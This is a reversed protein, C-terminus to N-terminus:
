LGVGWVLGGFSLFSQVHHGHVGWRGHPPPYVAPIRGLAPLHLVCLGSTSLSSTWGEVAEEEGEEKKNKNLDKVCQESQLGPHSYVGM